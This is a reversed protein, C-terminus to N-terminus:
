DILISFVINLSGQNDFGFKDLTNLIERVNKCNHIDKAFTIKDKEFIEGLEDVIRIQLELLQM